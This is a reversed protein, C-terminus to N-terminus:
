DLALDFAQCNKQLNEMEVKVIFKLLLVPFM